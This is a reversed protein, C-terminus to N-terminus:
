CSSEGGSQRQELAAIQQDFWLLRSPDRSSSEAKRVKQLANLVVNSPKELISAGNKPVCIAQNHPTALLIM